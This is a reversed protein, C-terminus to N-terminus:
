GCIPHHDRRETSNYLDHESNHACFYDALQPYPHLSTVYHEFFRVTSVNKTPSRGRVLFCGM